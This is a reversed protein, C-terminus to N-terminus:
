HKTPNAGSGAGRSYSSNSTGNTRLKLKRASSAPADHAAVVVVVIVRFRKVPGMLRVDVLTVMAPEAFNLGPMGSTVPAIVAVADSLLTVLAPMRLTGNVM